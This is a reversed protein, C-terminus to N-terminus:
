TELGAQAALRPPLICKEVACDHNVADFHGQAMVADVHAGSFDLLSDASGLPVRPRYRHITLPRYPVGAKFREVIRRMRRLGPGFDARLRGQRVVGFQEAMELDENVQRAVLTDTGMNNAVVIVYTRYLTDLSNPLEPFPIAVTLPDVYVVHLVDAGADIAPKFPTNMLLGGDVMLTGDLDVPPFIGPIAASARIVDTGYRQTIAAKDFRTSRGNVWDTTMITLAKSSRALLDLDITEQILSALPAESFLASFDANRLAEILPDRGGTMADLMYPARQLSYRTWFAANSASQLLLEMPNRLCGPDIWRRPDVRLRYVGNGCSAPTDAIRQRWIRALWSSAERGSGEFQALFAANYAGVSTGTYMGASMPVGGTAPSEGEFLARLVGVEYAGNAGGGSLVVAHRDERASRALAPNLVAQASPSAGAAAM